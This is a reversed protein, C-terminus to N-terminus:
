AGGKRKRFKEFDEPTAFSMTENDEDEKFIISSLLPVNRVRGLMGFIRRLTDSLDILIATDLGVKSGSIKQKVRSDDRLGLLLTGIFLPSLERYNFVHYTELLDCIM